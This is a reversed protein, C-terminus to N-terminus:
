FEKQKKDQHRKIAAQKYHERMEDTVIRHIVRGKKFGEPQQGEFCMINREGNTYHIMGKTRSNGKMMESMRKKYEETHPLGKKGKKKGINSKGIKRKHEETFVFHIHEANPNKSCSKEHRSLSNCGYIKGCYKCPFPKNMALRAIEYQRSTLTRKQFKSASCFFGLAYWVEKGGYIHTLLQHCFFHERATLPVINSKRNSWKPFLARPLIHHFEFYETPYNKRSDKPNKPRIGKKQLEKANMVIKMYIHRYNM